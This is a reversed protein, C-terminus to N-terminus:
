NLVEGDIHLEADANSAVVIKNRDFGMKTFFEPNTIHRRKNKSILYMKGDAINQIVTGERFGLKGLIKYHGVANETAQIVQSFNWSNLVTLSPIRLRYNDKIYFTGLPTEVVTGSPYDTKSTVVEHKTKFLRM